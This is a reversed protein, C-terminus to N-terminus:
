AGLVGAGGARAASAGEPGASGHVAVLMVGAAYVLLDPRWEGRAAHIVGAVLITVLLLAAGARLTRPVLFAVAGVAETSGIVRAHMDGAAFLVTHVSAWLLALGLMLHFALFAGRLRAEHTM